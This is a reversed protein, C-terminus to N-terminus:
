HSNRVDELIQRREAELKTYSIGHMEYFLTQIGRGLPQPYYEGMSCIFYGNAELFEGFEVVAQHESELAQLKECEPYQGM